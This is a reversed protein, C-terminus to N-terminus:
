NDNTCIDDLYITMLVCMTLIFYYKFSMLKIKIDNLCFAKSIIIIKKFMLIFHKYLFLFKPPFIWKLNLSNLFYFIEFLLLNVFLDNFRFAKWNPYRKLLLWKLFIDISWINGHWCSLILGLYITFLYSVLTTFLLYIPITIFKNSFICCETM